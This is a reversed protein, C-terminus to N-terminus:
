HNIKKELEAIQAELREMEAQASKKLRAGEGFLKKANATYIAEQEHLLPYLKAIEASIKEKQEAWQIKMKEVFASYDQPLVMNKWSSFDCEGFDVTGTSVITGDRKFGITIYGNTYIRVIGTWGSVNCQGNKNDGTAVVTGDEKLGVTTDKATYIAVIDTWDSVDCQGYKNDGTAVVTGDSRLGIVANRNAYVSVVDTWDSTNCQGYENNGVALVTGNSKLGITTLSTGMSYHDHACIAVIDTWDSVNCQGYENSGVAVVTGDTKLGVTHQVGTAVSIINSWSSVNSQGFRGGVGLVTKDSKLGIAIGSDAFSVVDTWDLINSWIGLDKGAIVVTGDSKLGYTFDPYAYVAVIDTWVSVDCQGNKNNGTAIVTGDARLGVTIGYSADLAIINTWNSVNCQGFDNYGDAKVTGDARLGACHSICLEFIGRLSQKRYEAQKKVFANHNAEISEQTALLQKRLQDDGCRMANQFSEFNSITNRTQSLEELSSVHNIALLQCLSVHANHPDIKLIGKCYTDALNWADESLFHEVREIQGKVWVQESVKANEVLRKKLSEDGYRIAKQFYTNNTVPKSLNDFLQKLSSRYSAALLKGIYAQANEPDFDLVKECYEDAAKWDHDELFMFARKLLPEVAANEAHVVVKEQIVTVPQNKPLIKEIGRLLDQMAGVKGLDQAQLKAFEKPMDYADIGKYCPILHRGKDQAMLKLYRSWENKVWVANYYEYDTGVALMIKASNLAAFIYPEYEMGLKDELTIRSFFVRYNKATLADYIDQALVSDLTRQGNEDTEKYCIFIDYPQENASVSIIGKRIEEIQKAEERYQRRALADANELAQEFDSDEMVSDFSSRHCTPIKKGTAPDDVYEIGYKCLVLGWYAEAEEPFDAVITEYIGAAKDFECAARLRNARAFLTMKKENDAAPVTQRSGCYECEAVSQGPILELDGGCMKCKIIAM